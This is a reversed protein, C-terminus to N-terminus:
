YEVRNEKMAWAEFAALAEEHLAQTTPLSRRSAPLPIEDYIRADDFGAAAADERTAAYCLRDLRAWYIAALCMPCPECSTYIECGALTFTHLRRCAERIAVIEAHATPDNATTVRNCGRGIIQGDKVVLAGFPGGEGAQMPDISLRIAERLFHEQM